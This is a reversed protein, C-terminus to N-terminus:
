EKGITVIPESNFPSSYPVPNTLQRSSVESRGAQISTVYCHRDAQVEFVYPLLWVWFLDIYHDALAGVLNRFARKKPDSFSAYNDRARNDCSFEEFHGPYILEPKISQMVDVCRCHMLLQYSNRLVTTQFSRTHTQGCETHWARRIACERHMNCSVNSNADKLM